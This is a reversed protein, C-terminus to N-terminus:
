TTASEARLRQWLARAETPLETLHSEVEATLAMRDGAALLEAIDWADQPGGAFLKLLILDAARVLPLAVEEFRGAEARELVSRQWARKGVVLDVPREGPAAFAVVGALPDAEDGRRVEASIGERRLPQWLGRDLCRPDMALLDIDLTSRSVGHAALAAAGILAHPVGARELASVLRALLSLRHRRDHM